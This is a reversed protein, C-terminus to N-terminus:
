NFLGDLYDMPTSEGTCHLKLQFLVMWIIWLLLRWHSSKTIRALFLVSIAWKTNKATTEPVFGQSMEVEEDSVTLFAKRSLSQLHCSRANLHPLAADTCGSNEKHLMSNPPPDM